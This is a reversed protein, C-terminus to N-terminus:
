LIDDPFLGFLLYTSLGNDLGARILRGKDFGFTKNSDAMGRNLWVFGIGRDDLTAM